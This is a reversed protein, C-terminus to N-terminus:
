RSAPSPTQLREVDGILDAAVMEFTGLDREARSLVVAGEAGALLKVALREADSAALGGQELLEALRRRWARFAMAAQNLLEVSETAVTVAVLACGLKFQTKTLIMRWIAFFHTAVEVASAGEKADLTSVAREASLKLAAAVLEDKGGPFHHYVSGRPAGTLEIVDAFSTGQLGRRALLQVAGEVMRQRVEGTM